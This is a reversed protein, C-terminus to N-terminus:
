YFYLILISRVEIYKEETLIEVKSSQKKPASPMKFEVIKNNMAKMAQLAKEGPRQQM